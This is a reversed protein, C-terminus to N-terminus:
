DSGSGTVMSRCALALEAVVDQRDEVAGAELRATIFFQHHSGTRWGSSAM